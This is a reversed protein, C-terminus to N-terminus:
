RRPLNHTVLITRVFNNHNKESNKTLYAHARSLPNDQSLIHTLYPHGPTFIKVSIGAFLLGSNNKDGVNQEREKHSTLQDVNEWQM